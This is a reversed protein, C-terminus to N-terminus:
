LLVFKVLLKLAKAIEKEVKQGMRSFNYKTIPMNLNLYSYM